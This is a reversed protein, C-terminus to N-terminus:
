IIYWKNDDSEREREKERGGKRTLGWVSKGKKTSIRM